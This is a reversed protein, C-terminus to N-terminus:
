EEIEEEISLDVDKLALDLGIKSLEIAPNKKNLDESRNMPSFDDQGCWACFVLGPGVPTMGCFWIDRYEQSTGTKAFIRYKNNKISRGTGRPSEVVRAMVHRMNDFADPNDLLQIPEQNTNQQWLIQGNEDTISTIGYPSIQQGDNAIILLTKILEYPSISTSGLILSCDNNIPRTVGLLRAVAIINSLGYEMAIRITAGNVSESFAREVTIMGVENHYYNSALWDGVMPVSDDFVSEPQMGQLFATLYVYIKFTSGTPRMSQTVRNFGYYNSSLGGIMVRTAGSMECLMYAVETFDFRSVDKISNIRSFVAKQLDLDLTSHVIIPHGAEKISDPIQELIWNVPIGGAAPGSYAVQTVAANLESLYVDESIAGVQYMRKLVHQTRQQGLRASGSYTSPAQLLGVLFAAESITLQELKKGFHAKAAGTIGYAGRGFYVRNLYYELIQAKTFRAELQFALALERIKREIKRKLLTPDQSFLVNKALQQTITSGGRRIKGSEINERIAKLMALPNIGAHQWFMRDETALLAHIISKPIDSLQAYNELHGVKIIVQDKCDKIIVYQDRGCRQRLCSLDAVPYSLLATIM